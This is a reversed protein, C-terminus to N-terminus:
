IKNEARILETYQQGQPTKKLIDWPIYNRESEARKEALTRKKEEYMLEYRKEKRKTFFVNLADTFHRPTINGYIYILEGSRFMHFFFYWERVKFLMAHPNALFTDAVSAIDEATFPTRAECFKVTERILDELFKKSSAEGFALSVAKLTPASEDEVFAKDAGAKIVGGLNSANVKAAFNQSTKFQSTLAQVQTAVAM